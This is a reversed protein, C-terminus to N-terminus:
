DELASMRAKAEGDEDADHSGDEDTDHVRGDEYTM